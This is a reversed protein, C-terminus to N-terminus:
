NKMVSGFIQHYIRQVSSNWDCLKAYALPDVKNEVHKTKRFEAEFVDLMFLYIQDLNAPLTFQSSNQGKQM